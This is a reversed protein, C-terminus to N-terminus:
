DRHGHSGEGFIDRGEAARANVAAPICAAETIVVAKGAGANRRLKPDVTLACRMAGVALIPVDHAVEAPSLLPHLRRRPPRANLASQPPCLKPSRWARKSDHTAHM